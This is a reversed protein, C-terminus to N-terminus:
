AKMWGRIFSLEVAPAFFCVFELTGEGVNRTLHQTKPPVYIAVGPELRHAKGLFELEGVGRLGFFVEVEVEHQHAPGIGGAEYRLIAMSCQAGPIVEPDFILRAYRGLGEPSRREEVEDKVFRYETM